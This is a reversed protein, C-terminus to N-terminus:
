DLNRVNTVHRSVQWLWNRETVVGSDRTNGVLREQRRFKGPLCAGCDLDSLQTSPFRSFHIELVGDAADMLGEAHCTFQWHKGTPACFSLIAMKPVLADACPIAHPPPVLLSTCSHMFVVATLPFEHYM